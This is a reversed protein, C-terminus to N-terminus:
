GASGAYYSERGLNDDELLEFLVPVVKDDYLHLFGYDTLERGSVSFHPYRLQLARVKQRHTLLQRLVWRRVPGLFFRPPTRSSYVLM